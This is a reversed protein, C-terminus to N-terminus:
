LKKLYAENLRNLTNFFAERVDKTKDDTQQNIIKGSAEYYLQLIENPPLNIETTKDYVRYSGPNNPETSWYFLDLTEGDRWSVMRIGINGDACEFVNKNRETIPAKCGNPNSLINGETWNYVYYLGNNVYIINRSEENAYTIEDVNEKICTKKSRLDFLNKKGDNMKTFVLDAYRYKPRDEIESIGNAVTKLTAFDLFSIEGSNKDECSLVDSYKKLLRINFNPLLLKNSVYDYIKVGEFSGGDSTSHKEAYAAVCHLGANLFAFEHFNAIVSKESTKVIESHGLGGGFLYGYNTGDAHYKTHWGGIQNGDEDFFGINGKYKIIYIEDYVDELSDFPEKFIIKNTKPDLVNFLPKHNKYKDESDTSVLYNGNELEEEFNYRMRIEDSDYNGDLRYNRYTAEIVGDRVTFNESGKPIDCRIICDLSSGIGTDPSIEFLTHYRGNVCEVYHLGDKEGAYFFSDFTAANLKEYVDEGDTAFFGFFEDGDKKTIGFIGSNDPMPIYWDKLEEVLYRGNTHYQHNYDKMTLIFWEDDCYYPRLIAWSDTKEVIVDENLFPNKVCCTYDIPDVLDDEYYIYFETSEGPEEFELSEDFQPMLVLDDFLRYAARESRQNYYEEYRLEEDVERECEYGKSRYFEAVDEPVIQEPYVRNNHLDAFEKREFCFQYRTYPYEKGNREEAESLDFNVFLPGSATYDRYYNEGNGYANATCWKMNEGLKCSAEYTNPVAILWNDDKYVIDFDNALESDVYEGTNMLYTEPENSKEYVPFDPVYDRIAEAVSPIAKVQLDQHSKLYDFLRKLKGNNVAEEIADQENEYKSLAWQSYSKKKTPDISIVADIINSPISDKYKYNLVEAPDKGEEILREFELREFIEKLLNPM